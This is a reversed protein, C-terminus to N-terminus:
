FITINNYQMLNIIIVSTLLCTAFFYLFIYKNSEEIQEPTQTKTNM